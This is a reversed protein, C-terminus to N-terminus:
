SSTAATTGSARRSSSGAVAPTSPPRTDGSSSPRWTPLTPWRRGGSGSTARTRRSSTSTTTGLTFAGANRDVGATPRVANGTTRDFVELETQRLTPRDPDTAPYVVRGDATAELRPEWTHTATVTERARTDLDLADVDYEIHDDPEAGRKVAYYLTAADGFTPAVFDRDGDTHREVTGDELDVTYVHSRAGDFYREDARYVMRDIVRPDPTEREYDEDVELDHGERREAETVRQTFAVTEGDPSLRPDEVQTLDHYDTARVPDM